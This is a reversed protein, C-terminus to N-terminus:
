SEVALSWSAMEVVESGAGKQDKVSTILSSGTKYLWPVVSSVGLSGPALHQCAHAEIHSRSEFGWVEFEKLSQACTM